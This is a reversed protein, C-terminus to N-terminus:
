RRGVERLCRERAWRTSRRECREARREYWGRSHRHRAHSRRPERVVIVGPVYAPENVYVVSPAPEPKTEAAVREATNEAREQEAEVVLPSEPIPPGPPLRWPSPEPVHVYVVKEIVRPAPPPASACGMVSATTAIVLGQLLSLM